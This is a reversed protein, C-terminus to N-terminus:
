RTAPEVQHLRGGPGQVPYAVGAAPWGCESERAPFRWALTPAALPGRWETLLEACGQSNLAGLDLAWEGNALDLDGRLALLHTITSAGGNLSVRGEKAEGKLAIRYFPTDGGQMGQWLSAADLAPAETRGFWEDLLPDLKVGEWFPDSLSLSLSGGLTERWRQSDSAQVSADLDGKGSLTLPAGGLKAWQELDLGRGALTLSGPQGPQLGWSGALKLHGDDPLRSELNRLQWQEPTLELLLEGKRSSLGKWVLEEWHSELRARGILPTVEEGKLRLDNVFLQWNMLSLPVADDFSLVRMKDLAIRRVDLRAPHWSRWQQWWGAPLSLEMGSLTLDKVTWESRAPAVSVELNFSGDYAKGRFEGDLRDPYMALDTDVGELQFLGRGIEGLRGHVFGTPAQGQRWEIGGLSVNIDNLALEQTLANLSVHELQGHSISVQTLPFELRELDGLEINMGSGKFRDLQLSRAGWDLVMDAEILGDFANAVLRDVSLKQGELKGSLTLRSLALWPTELANINLTLNAQPPRVPDILQWDRIGASLGTVKGLPGSLSLRDIRGDAVSLRNIPLTPLGQPLPLTIRPRILDLHALRVDRELWDVSEVEVYLKDLTLAEGVQVQEALLTYPHLPNFVLKGIAVPVGSQASLWRALPAKAREADFLGLVVWVTLLLFALTYLLARLWANM